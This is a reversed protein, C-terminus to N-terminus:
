VAEVHLFQEDLYVQAPQKWVKERLVDSLMFNGAISILEAEMKQCFVRADTDGKVGALARGRLNGYVHIHGDALVEAGESVQSLIILDAGEAYIQQGSRVPRTIIRSKRSVAVPQIDANNKEDTNVQNQNQPEKVLRRLASDSLLTLGTEKIANFFRSDSCRFAMPQLAFRRCTELLETLDIAVVNQDVKDLSIVISSQHFFDAAQNIKDELQQSFEQPSYRYIELIFTTVVSGKLQLCTDTM